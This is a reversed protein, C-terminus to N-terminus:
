DSKDVILKSLEEEGRQQIERIIKAYMMSKMSSNYTLVMTAAHSSTIMALSIADEFGYDAPGILVIGHKDLAEFEEGTTLSKWEMHVGISSLKYYPRLHDIGVHKELSRFDTVSPTLVCVWGYERKFSPGYRRVRRNYKRKALEMEYSSYPVQNLAKHYTQFDKMAKFSSIAQHDVMAKIAKPGYEILYAMVVVTEHMSRWRSLAGTGYGARILALIENAIRHVRAELRLVVPLVTDKEGLNNHIIERHSDIAEVSVGLLETFTDIIPKYSKHLSREFVKRDNIDERISKKVQNRSNSIVNIAIEDLVESLNGTLSKLAKRRAATRKGEPLKDMEKEFTKIMEEYLEDHLLARRRKYYSM